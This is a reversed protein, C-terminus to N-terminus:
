HFSVSAQVVHAARGHGLHQGERAPGPKCQRLEGFGHLRASPLAGDPPSRLACRLRPGPAEALPGRMDHPTGRLWTQCSVRPSTLKAALMAEGHARGELIELGELFSGCM